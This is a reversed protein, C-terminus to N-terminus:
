GSRATRGIQFAALNADLAKAPVRARIAELWVSEELQLLECLAGLLAINVVRINGVQRAIALGDVVIANSHADRIKQITDEPYTMPGSTVTIPAIRQNNVIVTGEPKLTDIWRFAELQEFALLVDVQGKPILPSSVRKGFRVHSTVSGGRQAMGHVESQKVDYGARLCSYALVESALIIGQGGVGAILINTTSNNM